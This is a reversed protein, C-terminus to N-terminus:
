RTYHANVFHAPATSLGYRLQDIPAGWGGLSLMPPTPTIPSAAAAAAFVATLVAIEEDSPDNKVIRIASMAAAAGEVGLNASEILEDAVTLDTKRAPASM